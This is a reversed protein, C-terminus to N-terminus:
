PNARDVPRLKQSDNPYAVAPLTRQSSPPSVPGGEMLSWIVVGIAPLKKPSGSKRIALRNSSFSPPGGPNQRSSPAAASEGGVPKLRRTKPLRNSATNGLWSGAM